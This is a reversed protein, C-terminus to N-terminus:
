FTRQMVKSSDAPLFSSRLEILRESETNLDPGAKQTHAARLKGGSIHERAHSSRM